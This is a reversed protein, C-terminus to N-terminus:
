EKWHPALDNVKSLEQLRMLYETHGILLSGAHLSNINYTGWQNKYPHMSVLSFQVSFEYRHIM